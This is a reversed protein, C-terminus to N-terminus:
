FYYSYYYYFLATSVSFLPLFEWWATRQHALALYNGTEGIVCLTGEIIRRFLHAFGAWLGDLERSSPRCLVLQESIRTLSRNFLIFFRLCSVTPLWRDTAPNVCSPLARLTTLLASASWSSLPTLALHLPSCPHLDWQNKKISTKRRSRECTSHSETTPVSKFHSKKKLHWVSVRPTSARHERRRRQRPSSSYCRDAELRRHAASGPPPPRSQPGLPPPPPPPRPSPPPSQAAALMQTRFCTSLFFCPWTLDFHSESAGPSNECWPSEPLNSGLTCFVCLVHWCTNVFHFFFCVFM